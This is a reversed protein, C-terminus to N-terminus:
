VRESCSARGIEEYLFYVLMPKHLKVALAYENSTGRRVEGKVLIVYLDSREVMMQYFQTSPIHSAEDEIIFPNLCACKSLRDKIRRRVDGWAFGNEEAHASSIFVRLRESLPKNTCMSEKVEEM